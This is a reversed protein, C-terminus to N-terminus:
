HRIEFGIFEGIAPGVDCREDRIQNSFRERVESLFADTESQEGEAVLGVRGDPLNQIYGTVEHGRAISLTTYRFGVGQVHGEYYVTSRHATM